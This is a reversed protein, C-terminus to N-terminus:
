CKSCVFCLVTVAWLMAIGAVSACFDLVTFDKFLKRWLTNRVYIKREPNKSLNIIEM